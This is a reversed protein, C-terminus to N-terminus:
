KTSLRLRREGAEIQKKRDKIQAYFRELREWVRVDEAGMQELKQALLRAGERDGLGELLDLGWLRLDISEPYIAYIRALSERLKPLNGANRHLQALTTLLQLDTPKYLLRNEVSRLSQSIAALEEFRRQAAEALKPQELEGAIRALLYWPKPQYPDLDRAQTAAQLAADLRELDYLIQARWTAADEHKPDLVLVRELEALATELEGLRMCALAHGRLAEVEDPNKALVREYHAKARPYDALSYYGHALVRTDGVRDPVLELYREMCLVADGYRQLRFYLVGLQHWAPPFDPSAKLVAHLASLSRPYDGARLSQQVLEMGAPLSSRDLKAPDFGKWRGQEARPLDRPDLTTTASDQTWCLLWAALLLM